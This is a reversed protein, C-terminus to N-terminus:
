RPAPAGDPLAMSQLQLDYLVAADEPQWERGEHGRYRRHFAALAAAPDSLDYGILRLAAWPDFGPPPEARPERPWLGYGAQALQPWPFLVSPDSKRGPALDGHAVLAHRPIGLRSTLDALLRLLSQIQAPAFPESGDNDLEIGISASNLDTLEGWRGAGAHWARAEDAVLQYIRGDEGILYHASVPGQSNRTQLTRLAREASEMQTHHLVILQAKRANHNPSGQWQALPNRAPQVSACGVALSAALLVGVGRRSFATGIM